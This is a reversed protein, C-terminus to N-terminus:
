FLKLLGDLFGTNENVFFAAALLMLMLLNVLVVKKLDSRLHKYEEQLEPDPNQNNPM